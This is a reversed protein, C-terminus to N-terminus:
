HLSMFLPHEPYSRDVEMIDFPQSDSVWRGTRNMSEAEAYIVADTAHLGTSAFLTLSLTSLRGRKRTPNTRGEAQAAVGYIRVYAKNLRSETSLDPVVVCYIHSSREAASRRRLVTEFVQSWDAPNAGLTVSGPAM